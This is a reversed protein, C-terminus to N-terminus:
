RVPLLSHKGRYHVQPDLLPDLEHRSDVAAILPGEGADSLSMAHVAATHMLEQGQGPQEQGGGAWWPPAQELHAAQNNPSNLPLLQPDQSAVHHGNQSPVTHPSGPLPYPHSNLVAANGNVHSPAARGAAHDSTYPPPLPWGPAHQEIPRQNERFEDTQQRFNPHSHSEAQQQRYSSHCPPYLVKHPASAAPRQPPKYSSEEDEWQAAEDAQWQAEDAQWQEEEDESWQSCMGSHASYPRAAAAM